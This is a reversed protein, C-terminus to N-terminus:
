WLDNFRHKNQIFYAWVISKKTYYKFKSAQLRRKKLFIYFLSYFSFHARLIASIHKFKGQTLFQIAAVGDLLMRTLILFYARGGKVNKLLLLLTNRFNFFTKKPNATALTAGGVHYVKSAGIYKVTGGITQLRWCLDIEEQHAFFDEDFGGVNEFATKKLFLCAGSAWFIPVTDNYQGTDKELTNFIRGRCFPYGLADIYGGAAGAYEFLNRNNYDRIKPQAAVLNPDDKFAQLVPSLWNHTVEVDSNLLVFLDEQLNKLAENYGKAYGANTKNQIIKVQPFQQKVFAVSDDTSANDAVYVTAEKSFAIVSPLFTELLQKGNWNLIVVATKM